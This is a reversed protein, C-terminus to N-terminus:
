VFGRGERVTPRVSWAIPKLAPRNASTAFPDGWLFTKRYKSSLFQEFQNFVDRHWDVDLCTQNKKSVTQIMSVLGGAHPLSNTNASGL